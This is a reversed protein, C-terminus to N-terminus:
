STEAAASAAQFRHDATFRHVSGDFATQVAPTVVVLEPGDDIETLARLLHPLTETRDVVPHYYVPLNPPLAAGGTVLGRRNPAARWVVGLREGGRDLVLPVDGRLSRDVALELLRPSLLGTMEAFTLPRPALPAQAKGMAPVRHVHWEGAAGARLGPDDPPPPPTESAVIAQLGERRLDRLWGISRAAVWARSALVRARGALAAVSRQRARV